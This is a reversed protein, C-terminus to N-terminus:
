NPARKGADVSSRRLALFESNLWIVGVGGAYQMCSVTHPDSIHICPATRSAQIMAFVLWAWIAYDLAVHMIVRSCPAVQLSM